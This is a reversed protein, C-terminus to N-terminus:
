PAEDAVCGPFITFHKRYARGDSTAEAIQTRNEPLKFPNDLAPAASSEVVSIVHCANLYSEPLPTVKTPRVIPCDSDLSKLLYPMLADNHGSFVFVRDGNEDCLERHMKIYALGFSNWEKLYASRDVSLLHMGSWPMVNMIIFYVFTLFILINYLRKVTRIDRLLGCIHLLARM